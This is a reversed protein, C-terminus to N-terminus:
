DLEDEDHEFPKGSSRRGIFSRRDFSALGARTETHPQILPATDLQRGSQAAGAARAQSINNGQGDGSNRTKPGEGELFSEVKQQILYQAPKQTTRLSSDYGSGSGFWESREKSDAGREDSSGESEDEDEVEDDDDHVDMIRAREVHLADCDVTQPVERTSPDAVFAGHQVGSLKSMNEFNKDNVTLMNHWVRNQRRCTHKQNAPTVRKGHAEELHDNVHQQTPEAVGFDHRKCQPCILKTM